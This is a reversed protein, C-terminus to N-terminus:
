FKLKVSFGLTRTSPQMFYDIGQNYTGTNATLEPDFPAKCYLMFLNHAVFSVNMGKIWPVYKAIPVDYGLTLESLRLNTASYVYQSAITTTTSSITQFYAQPTIGNIGNVVVGGADRAEASRVSTGYADMLSETLSVAVGGHRYNFLFGLSLGKWSFSNGWSLNYNPSAHGAFVYENDTTRISHDQPDVYIEGHEGTALTRVYIDSLDGGYVAKNRTGNYGGLNVEDKISYTEGTSPDTYSAEVTKIKNRNVTWTMYTEWNVPGLPQNFRATLEIGKNEVSGGNVWVDTYGSSPDLTINYFQHYTRSEYLTANLKLKNRFLVLDIGAEWSKTREPELNPNKMSTTLSPGTAGNIPFTPITLYPLYPDNGVEAYSLRTKFYNLWNESKIQPFIDTWIGSIGASWYFYSYNNPYLASSWDNRATLDLYAMSKYGIQASGFVAMKKRREPYLQNMKFKPDAPDINNLTFKNPVSGLNGGAYEGFNDRQDYNTGLVSFISWTNEGFYKNITLLSEAYYQRVTQNQLSYYGADSAFLNKTGASLKKEYRNSYNDYKVRGTLSIWSAIDWKLSAVFMNRVKRNIFKEKEVIWYPNEMLDNQSLWPWYQTELNRSVNYRSYYQIGEYDGGAPFLYLTYLPNHYQGQSIMNQEKVTALTYSLDLTLKDNLFKSTNRVNLNYRDFDNNHILGEANTAGLSLYTQNKETGTSISVNNSINNGTQFFDNPDYSSPTALKAGWSDFAGASSTGYTNQFKHKVFPRSFQFSGTYTVDLHGAQGKKTTIIIVGNSANSGYLAAASPGSLVSISEIDNPNINSAGDGSSGSGAFMDNPQTSQFDNMPVGDIVYLANNNGNISKAGRMVVRTASGVGAASQSFQVGAVKGNLSNVFNADQVKMVADSTLQQVNYSLSKAEKKIGLATVVVENLTKSDQDLQVKIGNGSAAVEKPTYGLYSVVLTSGAPVKFTFNGDLDTVTAVNTGKVKVTAGIIPDGNEDLVQGSVQKDNAQQTGPLTTIASNGAYGAVPAAVLAASLCFRLLSKQKKNM